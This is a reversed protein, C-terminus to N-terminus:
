PIKEEQFYKKMVDNHRPLLRSHWTIRGEGTRFDMAPGAADPQGEGGAEGPDPPAYAFGLPVDPDALNGQFTKGEFGGFEPDTQGAGVLPAPGPGRTIGGRGPLMGACAGAGMICGRGAALCLAKLKELDGESFFFDGKELMEILREIEEMTLAELGM